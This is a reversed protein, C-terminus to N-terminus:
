RRERLASRRYIADTGLDGSPVTTIGKAPNTFSVQWLPTANIGTNSNGDFAFVATM